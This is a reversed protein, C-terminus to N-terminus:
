TLRCGQGRRIGEEYWIGALTPIRNGATCCAPLPLHGVAPSGAAQTCEAAFSAAPGAAGGPSCRVASSAAWADDAEPGGVVERFARDTVELCSTWGAAFAAPVVVPLVAV